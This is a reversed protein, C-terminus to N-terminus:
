NLQNNRRLAENLSRCYGQIERKKAEKERQFKQWDNIKFLVYFLLSNLIANIIFTTLM